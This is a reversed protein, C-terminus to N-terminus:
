LSTFVLLHLYVRTFMRLCSYVHNFMPLCALNALPLCLMFLCTYVYMLLIFLHLITIVPSCQYVRTFMSLYYYFM